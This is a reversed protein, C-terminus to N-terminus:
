FSNGQGENGAGMDMVIQVRNQFDSVHGTHPTITFLCQRKRDTIEFPGQQQQTQGNKWVLTALTELPPADATGLITGGKQITDSVSRADMDIIEENLPLFPVM